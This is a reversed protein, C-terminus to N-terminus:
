VIISGTRVLEAFQDPGMTITKEQEVRNLM